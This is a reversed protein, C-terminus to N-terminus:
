ALASQGSTRNSTSRRNDSRIPAGEPSSRNKGQTRHLPHGGRESEGEAAGPMGRELRPERRDPLATVVTRAGPDGDGLAGPAAAGGARRAERWHRLRRDALGAAAITGRGSAAGVRGAGVGLQRWDRWSLGMILLLLLGVIAAAAM